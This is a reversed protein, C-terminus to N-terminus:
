LKPSKWLCCATAWYVAADDVAIGEARSGKLATGFIEVAGGAKGVRAANAGGTVTAMWYAAAEDLAMSAITGQDRALTTSTAGDCALTTHRKVTGDAAGIFVGSADAAVAVAPSADVVCADPSRLVGAPGAAYVVGAQVALAAFPSAGTMVTTPAGGARPMRQVTAGEIWYVADGDAAIESPSARGSAVARLGDGNPQMQFVGGDAVTTTLYVTQDVVIGNAGVLGPAILLLDGAAKDARFAGADAPGNAAWFVFRSDVAVGRIEVQDKVVQVRDGLAKAPPFSGPGVADVAADVAADAVVPRGEYSGLPYAFSCAVLGFVGLTLLRRM